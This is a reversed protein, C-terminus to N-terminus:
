VLSGDVVITGSATGTYEMSHIQWNPSTIGKGGVASVVPAKEITFTPAKVLSTGVWTCKDVMLPGLASTLIIPISATTDVDQLVAAGGGCTAKTQPCAVLALETRQNQSGLLPQLINRTAVTSATSRSYLGNSCWWSSYAVSAANALFGVNKITADNASGTDATVAAM